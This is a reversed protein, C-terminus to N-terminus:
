KIHVDMQPYPISIGARDLAKKGEETLYLKLTWYDKNLTWVRLRCKVASDACETVIVAPPSPEDSALGSKEAAGLLIERVQDLDATYSVSFDIEVWRYKESSNNIIATNTLNSNPLSIHRGDYTNFETYFVGIKLVSGETDGIKVFDGAKFPKMILILIGGIFNSLAGQMALSVGVSASALLTLFTTMPIGMVNAATLIIVAYIIVRLLNSFFGTLTRDVPLKEIRNGILKFLWHAALFGAGFVLLGLLVKVGQTQLWVSIQEITM